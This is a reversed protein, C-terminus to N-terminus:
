SPPVCSRPSVRVSACNAFSPTPRYFDHLQQAVDWRSHTRQYRQSSGHRGAVSSVVLAREGRTGSGKPGQDGAGFSIAGGVECPCRLRQVAGKSGSLYCIPENRRKLQRREVFSIRLKKVFCPIAVNFCGALMARRKAIM